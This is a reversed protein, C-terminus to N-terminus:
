VTLAFALVDAVAFLALAAVWVWYMSIPWGNSWEEIVREKLHVLGRPPLPKQPLNDPRPDPLGFEDFTRLL